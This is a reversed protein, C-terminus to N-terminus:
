LYFTEFKAVRGQSEQKANEQEKAAELGLGCDVVVEVEVVVEVVEVERGQFKVLPPFSGEKTNM